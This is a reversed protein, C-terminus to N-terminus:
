PRNNDKRKRKLASHRFPGQEVMKGPHCNWAEPAYTSSFSFIIGTTADLLMLDNGPNANASNPYTNFPDDQAILYLSDPCADDKKAFTFLLTEEGQYFEIPPDNQVIGFSVYDKTPNEEPANVYANQMWTGSFNKLNHFAYGAPSVITVQASGIVLNETLVLGDDTKAFVGWALSDQLWQLKYKIQASASPTSLTFAVLTAAFCLIKSRIMVMTKKFM